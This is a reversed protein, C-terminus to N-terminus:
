YLSWLFRIRSSKFFPFIVAALNSPSGFAILCVIFYMFSVALSFLHRNTVVLLYCLPCSGLSCDPLSFILIILLHTAGWEHLVGVPPTQIRLTIQHIMMM